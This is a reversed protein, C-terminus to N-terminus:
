RLVMRDGEISVSGFQSLFSQGLLSMGGGELVVADARTVEKPGLTVRDLTVYQGRVEGSAGEGVVESAYGLPVGARQADERTLAIGSAGTDILFEVPMGNIQVEAYFHGDSNRDLTVTGSASETKSGSGRDDDESFWRQEGSSSSSSSSSTSLSNPKSPMLAGVFSCVFLAIVAFRLM